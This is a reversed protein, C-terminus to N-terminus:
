WFNMQRKEMEESLKKGFVKRLEEVIVVTGAIGTVVLWDIPNLVTTKFFFNIPAVYIVVFQLGISAIVAALLYWNFTKVKFLSKRVDRCNFVNFMQFMVLTTFAMTRARYVLSTDTTVSRLYLISEAVRLEYVFIFLTGIAMTIAVTLMSLLENNTIVPENPDRPHQKIIEPDSPELGLAMAPLGDTVLNIWLIQIAIIPLPLGLLIGIFVVLIEGINSSILYRVFKKMNSYISRGEEIANVITAFNDDVIVMDSSEKAVDTGTIGMAVGIDANKLAPADNVGDGTMAVIHGKKQLAQLIRAKHEPSTRAFVVADELVKQLKYDSMKDVERGTYSIEKGTADELLGLEKAVAIATNMHDGTIMMIRIGSMKCLAIAKKAEERPPDIMGALGVFVLDKEVTQEEFDEMTPPLERFAMALVRLADNTMQENAKLIEEKDKETIEQIQNYKYIYSCLDLIVDPAGKVNTERAGNMQNITSMRKRESEFSIESIRHYQDAIKEKWIGTKAAFVVLAGETPDGVINWKTDEDSKSSTSSNGSSVLYADNCLAAIKALRIIHDDNQYDIPVNNQYIKGTPEYGVGSVDYIQGNTFIKQVTMENKTLTGTKDSCIVTASGLAEVAPLKRIIVNRKAMRIVGLALSITVVAPLGEPVAAVALSVAVIFMDLIVKETKEASFFIGSVFVITCIIIVAIGIWKGLGRLKSQLPTEKEEATQIMEAIKGIETNSGTAIVVAKGRGNTVITGMFAQNKKETTPLKENALADTTKKVPVSEGTLASENIKLGVVEILRVDAPIFSGTELLVIDGPVLEQSNIEQIHGGRVVTAKPAALQRLSELSKESKNEQVVGLISNLVVISAITIADILEGFLVSIAIAALLLYILYDQFQEIFMHFITKRKREVLENPGFIKQRRQVELESLGKESTKLSKMVDESSLAHPLLNNKTM